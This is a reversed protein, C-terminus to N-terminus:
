TSKIKGTDRALYEELFTEADVKKDNVRKLLEIVFEDYGELETGGHEGEEQNGRTVKKTTIKLPTKTCQISWRRDDETVIIDRRNNKQRTRSFWMEFKCVVVANPQRKKWEIAQDLLKAVDSGDITFAGNDSRKCDILWTEGSRTIVLVDFERSIRWSLNHRKREYAVRMEEQVTALKNAYAKREASSMKETDLM